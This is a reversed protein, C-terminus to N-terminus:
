IVDHLLLFKKTTCVSLYVLKTNIFLMGEALDNEKVARAKLANILADRTPKPDVFKLWVIIMELLCAATDKHQQRIEELIESDIELEIGIDM